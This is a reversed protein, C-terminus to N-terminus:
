RKHQDTLSQKLFRNIESIRIEPQLIADRLGAGVKCSATGLRLLLYNLVNWMAADFKTCVVDSISYKLDDDSSGRNLNFTLNFM